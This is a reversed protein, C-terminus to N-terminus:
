VHLYIPSPPHSPQTEIESGGEGQPLPNPPPPMRAIEGIAILVGELNSFVDRNAIRMVGIGQEAMWADRVADGPADIHSAGDVEIDLRASPCYFDAIYPGLPVQRRFKLGHIARNRLWQWLLREAPTTARRLSRAHSLLTEHEAGVGGGGGGVPPPTGGL